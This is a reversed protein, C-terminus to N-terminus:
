TTNRGHWVRSSGHVIAVDDKYWHWKKAGEFLEVSRLEGSSLWGARGVWSTFCLNDITQKCEGGNCGGGMGGNNTKVGLDNLSRSPTRGNQGELTYSLELVVCVPPVIFFFCPPSSISFFSWVYFFSSRLMDINSRASITEAQVVSAKINHRPWSFFKNRLAM